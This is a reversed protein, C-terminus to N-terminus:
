VEAPPRTTPTPAAVPLTNPLLPWGMSPRKAAPSDVSAGKGLSQDTEPMGSKYAILEPRRAPRAAAAPAPPLMAAVCSRRSRMMLLMVEGKFTAWAAASSFFGSVSSFGRSWSEFSSSMLLILPKCAFGGAAAATAAGAAGVPMEISSTFFCLVFSSAQITMLPSTMSTVFHIGMWGPPSCAMTAYRPWSAESSHFMIWLAPVMSFFRTASPPLPGQFLPLSPPPAAGAAAAPPPPPSPPSVIASTPFCM